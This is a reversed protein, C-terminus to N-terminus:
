LAGIREKLQAVIAPDAQGAAMALVNAAPMSKVFGLMPHSALQPVLEEIIARSEPDHLLQEITTTELDFKAM